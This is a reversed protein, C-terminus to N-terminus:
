CLILLWFCCCCCCCCCCFVVVVVVVVFPTSTLLPFLFVELFFHCVKYVAHIRRRTELVDKEPINKLYDV